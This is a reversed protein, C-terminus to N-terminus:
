CVIVSKVPAISSRCSASLVTGRHLEIRMVCRRQPDDHLVTVAFESALAQLRIFLAVADPHELSQGNIPFSM